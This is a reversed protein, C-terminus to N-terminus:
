AAEVAQAGARLGSAKMLGVFTLRIKEGRVLGLQDLENLGCAVEKRSAGICLALVNVSASVDSQALDLLAVLLSKNLHTM